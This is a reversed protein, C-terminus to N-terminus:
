SIYERNEYAEKIKTGIVKGKGKGNGEVTFGGAASQGGMAKGPRMQM